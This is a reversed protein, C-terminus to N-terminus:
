GLAPLDQPGVDLPDAADGPVGLRHGGGCLLADGRATAASWLAQALAMALLAWGTVLVLLLVAGILKRLRILCPPDAIIRRIQRSSLAPVPRYPGRWRGCASRGRIVVQRVLLYAGASSARLLGSRCPTAAHPGPQERDSRQDEGEHNTPPAVRSVLDPSEIVSHFGTM